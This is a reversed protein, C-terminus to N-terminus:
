PAKLFQLVDVQAQRFAAENHGAKLQVGCRREIGGCGTVSRVPVGSDFSHHADAYERLVIDARGVLARCFPTPTYDDLSGIVILTPAAPQRNARFIEDRGCWPYAAVIAAFRDAPAADNALYLATGAGHSYGMFAVRTADIQPRTKLYRLAAYADAVRDQQGVPGTRVGDTCVSTPWGRAKFSELILTAYGQERLVRRWNRPARSGSATIGGCGHALIVAPFPGQGDPLDLDARLTIEHGLMRSYAFFENETPPIAIPPSLPACAALALLALISRRMKALTPKLAITDLRM